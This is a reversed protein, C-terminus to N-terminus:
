RRVLDAFAILNSDYSRLERDFAGDCTVLRLVPGAAPAFVVETPFEAKLHRELRNVAYTVTTGDARAVEIEDGPALDRLRFFVAPGDVSDIHGAIVAPGDEGPKPAETYWGAEEFRVPVELTGDPNRGLAVLSTAVGIAPISLSVPLSADLVPASPEYPPASPAYRTTPPGSRITTTTTRRPRPRTTTSTAGPSATSSPASEEAVDVSGSGGGGGCAAVLLCATM